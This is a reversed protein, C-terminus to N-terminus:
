KAFPDNPITAAGPAAGGAPPTAFPDAPMAGGAPPASGFPDVPAAAGGAPPATGFPDAGSPTAFPDTSPTAFPDTTAPPAAGPNTAPPQGNQGPQASPAGPAAVAEGAHIVPYLAGTERLGVVRGGKTALYIRDTFTNVFAIHDGLLPVTGVLGGTARDIVYVRGLDGLGYVRTPSAAVVRTVNPTWWREEGKTLDISFLGGYENTVFVDDDVVFPSEIIPEGTTFRWDLNGSREQLCYLNGDVSGVLIRNGAGFAPKARIEDRCELRYRVANENADGVYLYGRMSPWAITGGQIIPQVDLQGISRFRYMARSVREEPQRLYHSELFGNALPIHVVEDSVAPGAGPLSSLPSQYLLEGTQSDAVFVNTGNAIAIFKDNVGPEYPPNVNSGFQRVWLTAGTEADLATVLGSEAICYLTVQPVVRKTVEAKLESDAAQLRALEQEAKTKAGEPGLERGFANLEHESVTVLLEPGSAVHYLTTSRSPSVYATIASLGGFRIDTEVQVSWMPALDYQKLTFENLNRLSGPNTLQGFASPSVALILLLVLSSRLTGTM